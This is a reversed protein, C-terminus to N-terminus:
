EASATARKGSKKHARIRIVIWIILAIIVFLIVFLLWLPCIIVMKSIQSTIGEFEITYFVNFIGIPPTKDWISEFYLTRNPLVVRVDPNEENTYIEENSFLPYIQLTFKADDHVNGTNRVMASATINGSFLFSPLNLDYIDGSRVTNGAIEAYVTYAIAVSEAISVSGKGGVSEPSATAATIAMYQGGAPADKPVDITFNIKKTENPKLTGTNPSNITTWKTIQSTENIDEFIPNNDEDRYYSQIFIKYNFDAESNAPSTISFESSYSQGPTLIIKEYMPSMSFSTALKKNDAYSQLPFMTSGFIFMAILCNASWKSITFIHKMIFEKSTLKRM